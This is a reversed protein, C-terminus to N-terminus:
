WVRHIKQTIQGFIFIATITSRNKRFGQQGESITVHETAKSGSDHVIEIGTTLHRTYLLYWYWQVLIELSRLYNRRLYQWCLLTELFLHDVRNRKDTGKARIKLKRRRSIEWVKRQPAYLDHEYNTVESNVRNRTPSYHERNEPTSNNRYSLYARQKEKALVKIEITFWQKNHSKRSSSIKRESLAEKSAETITSNLEFILLSYICYQM